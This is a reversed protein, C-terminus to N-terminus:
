SRAQALLRGRLAEDVGDAFNDVRVISINAGDDKWVVHGLEHWQETVPDIAIYATYPETLKTEHTQELSQGKALAEEFLAYYPALAAGRRKVEAPRDDRKTKHIVEVRHGGKDVPQEKEVAKTYAAADEYSSFSVALYRHFKPGDSYEPPEGKYSSQSRVARELGMITKHFEKNKFQLLVVENRQGSRATPAQQPPPQAHPGHAPSASAASGSSGPPAVSAAAKPGPVASTGALGGVAQILKDIKISMETQSEEMRRQRQEMGKIRNSLTSVLGAAHGDVAQAVSASLEKQLGIRMKRLAEAIAPDLSEDVDGVDIGQDGISFVEPGATAVRKQEPPTSPTPVDACRKQSEADTEMGQGSM